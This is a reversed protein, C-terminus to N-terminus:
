KLPISVGVAFGGAFQEVSPQFYYMFGLDVNNNRGLELGISFPIHYIAGSKEITNFVTVTEFKGISTGIGLEIYPAIWPIPARLRAKGGLLFAKTEGKEITPNGDIDTGDSSTTVFGAYPILELWSKAKLVLEGQIIFGTDQVTAVSHDPGSVGIGVLANISKEYIFQANISNSVLVIILLLLIKKM